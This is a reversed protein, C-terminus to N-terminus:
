QCLPYLAILITAFLSLYLLFPVIALFLLSFLQLDMHIYMCPRKQNYTKQESALKDNQGDANSLANM